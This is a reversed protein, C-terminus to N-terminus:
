TREDRELVIIENSTFTPKFGEIENNNYKSLVVVKNVYAPIKCDNIATSFLWVTHKENVTEIHTVYELKRIKTIYNTTAVARKEQDVIYCQIHRGPQQMLLIFDLQGYDNAIHVIREKKTLHFNLAHYSSKNSEFDKKVEKEIHPEKYLFSLLLKKRFYNEDEVKLRLVEFNDRFHKGINKARETYNKGYREDEYAIREGVYNIIQGDYIIFDGKPILESNGQLYIPLIDLQLKEALFFAGKHFRHIENTYSRTGEPFIMLSFQTGIRERLHDISGDIGQSVPYFGALRVARGFIPSNWVWDNVLFVINPNYM